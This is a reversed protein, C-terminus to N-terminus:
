VGNITAETARLNECLVTLKIIVKGEVGIADEELYM